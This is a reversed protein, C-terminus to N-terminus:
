STAFKLLRIADFDTLDGGVRRRAYFKVKGKTTYPDRLITVGLRDLITYGQRFDGFAIAFANAAIAPMDENFVVPHGILIPRGGETLSDVWLHRGTADKLKRLAAGTSRRMKWVANALYAPKLKAMLDFLCDPDDATTVTADTGFGGATGTPVYQLVGWGRTADDTTVAAAAYDLFGRPQNVGTGTVFATGEVRGFKDGIKETVYAGIDIDGDDLLKQTVFPQAYQEHAEITQLGVKPTDTENRPSKEAVWGGSEIDDHDLPIELAGGRTINRVTALSRMPSQDFLRRKIATDREPTALFGGDSESGVSLENMIQPGAREAGFRWYTSEAETYRRLGEADIAVARPASARLAANFLALHNTPLEDSAPASTAGIQLRAVAKLVQDYGKELPQLRQEVSAHIKDLTAKVEQINSMQFFGRYARRM